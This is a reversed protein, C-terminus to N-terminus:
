RLSSSQIRRCGLARPVFALYRYIGKFIRFFFGVLAFVVILYFEVDFGRSQATFDHFQVAYPFSKSIFGDNM